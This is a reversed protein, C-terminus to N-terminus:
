NDQNTFVFELGDVSFPLVDFPFETELLAPQETQKNLNNEEIIRALKNLGYNQETSAM